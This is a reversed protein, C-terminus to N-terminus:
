LFRRYLFQTGFVSPTLLSLPSVSRFSFWACHLVLRWVSAYIPRCSLCIGCGTAAPLSALSVLTDSPEGGFTVVPPHSLELTLLAPQEEPPGLEAGLVWTLCSLGAQFELLLCDFVREPRRLCGSIHDRHEHLYVCM